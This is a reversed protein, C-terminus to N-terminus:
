ESWESLCEDIISKNDKENIERELVKGAIDVAMRSVSKDFDNKLRKKTALVEAKASEIINQSVAEASAILEDAKLQAKQATEAGVRASEEKVSALMGDYKQKVGLAEENLKQNEDFIDSLKKNHAAIIKKMPKYLIFFLAVALVVIATLHFVMGQWTIGLKEFM